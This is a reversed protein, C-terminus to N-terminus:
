RSHLSPLIGIRRVDSLLNKCPATPAQIVPSIRIRGALLICAAVIRELRENSFPRNKEVPGSRPREVSPITMMPIVATGQYLLVGVQHHIDKEKPATLWLEFATRIQVIEAFFFSVWRVISTKKKPATLWLEFATRIQVIEAFLFSVWRVISTKKKPATLWIRVPSRKRVM